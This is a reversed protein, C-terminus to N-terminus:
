VGNHWWRQAIRRQLQMKSAGQQRNLEFSIAGSHATDYQKVGAHRYREIVPQRPFAFRNKYGVAYLVTHPAVARIFEATSSSNSGHHPALLVAARLTEAPYEDLLRREGEAEIDGTLLVTHDGSRVRLVCSLDNDKLAESDEDAVPSLVDFNVGDWVWGLGRQCLEVRQAPLGDTQSSILRDVPLSSLISRAGGVHDMDGHSILLADVRDVGQSQLYPLLVSAGTDYSKGFRPGTDYVLVHGATRVVMALGQGVDLLAFRAKGPAPVDLSAFLLPACWVVGLWRAPLGRPGILMLMGAIALILTWLPPQGTVSLNAELQQLWQLVPWFVAMSLDALEILLGGFAPSVSVALAGFLSLPVTTFSTWPVALLNALMSSLPTYHFAYLLAPSLGITAVWHARGWKMWLGRDGLRNGVGFILVFVAGFSLWFGISLVAFPDYIVVLLLATALVALPQTTRRLLIATLVVAVMILSRQTPISFGALACYICAILLAAVAAARDAPWQTRTLLTYRWAFMGFWYVMGAVLSVHLGSISMLHITGTDRLVQWQDDSISQQDGNSLALIIGAFESGSLRHLVAAGIEQRWRDIGGAWGAKELRLNAPSARVSGKARIRQLFMQQEQDFGGPNMLGHPRKLRVNLRWTDGPRLKAANMGSWMLQIRGPSPWQRTSDQLTEVDLLFKVSDDYQVPLGVIRGTVTLPKAELASPLSQQLVIDARFLAWLFGCLLLLPLRLPTNLRILVILFPFLWVWGTSPLSTQGCLLVIGLLFALTGTLLM